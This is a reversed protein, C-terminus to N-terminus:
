CGLEGHHSHQSVVVQGRSGRGSGGEKPRTFDIVEFVPYTRLVLCELRTAWDASAGVTEYCSPSTPTVTPADFDAERGLRHVM